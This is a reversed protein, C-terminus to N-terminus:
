IHIEQCLDKRNSEKAILGPIRSRAWCARHPHDGPDDLTTEQKVEGVGGVGSNM